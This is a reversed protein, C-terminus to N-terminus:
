FGRPADTVVSVVVAAVVFAAVVSTHALRSSNTTDRLNM